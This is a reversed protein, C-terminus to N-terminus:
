EEFRLDLETLDDGGSLLTKLGHVWKKDADVFDKLATRVSGGTSWGELLESLYSLESEEKDLVAVLKGFDKHAWLVAEKECLGSKEFDTQWFFFGSKHYGLNYLAKYVAHEYDFGKSLARKGLNGIKEVLTVIMQAHSIGTGLGGLVGSAAEGFPNAEGVADAADLIKAVTGLSEDIRRIDDKGENLDWVAWALDRYLNARERAAKKLDSIKAISSVREEVGKATDMEIRTVLVNNGEEIEKIKDAPDVTAIAVGSCASQFTFPVVKGSDAWVSQITEKQTEGAYEVRIDVGRAAVWGKNGVRVILSIEDGAIAKEEDWVISEVELDPMDEVFYATVDKNSEMTVRTSPNEGWADGGWKKFKWGSNAHAKIEVKEGEPYKGDSPTVSGGGSPSVSTSLRYREEEEEEFYATVSKNSNMTISTSSSTGSANGGWHDFDWGNDAVADISVKKGEKHVYTDPKPKTTGGATSHITLEFEKKEPEKEGFSAELTKNEDMFVTVSSAPIVKWNVAQGWWNEFEWGDCAEATVTVREGADFTHSGEGPATKGCGHMKITLKYQIREKEEFYATISKNSNMTITKSSGTGSADGGWKKFNWDSNAYAKLTIREGCDYSGGSPSVRGSGSPSVTTSLTCEEIEEEFYATVSKNSNMTVSTSSSSGSADGGWYDFNWDRCPDAYITVRDGEDYTYTGESPDTDGCGSTRITLTYRNSTEEITFTRSKTNNSENSEAVANTTDVRWEVVHTGGTARWPNESWITGGQGAGASIPGYDNLSGDIYVEVQFNHADAQGQNVVTAGFTITDGEDFPEPTNFGVEQFTIDAQGPSAGGVKRIYHYSEHVSVVMHGICPDGPVLFMRASVDEGRVEVQDGVSVSGIVLSRSLVQVCAAGVWYLSGQIDGVTGSFRIDSGEQARALPAAVVFTSLIFTTMLVLFAAKRLGNRAGM